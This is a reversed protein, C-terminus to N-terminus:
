EVRPFHKSIQILRDKVAPDRMTARPGMTFLLTAVNLAAGWQAGSLALRAILPNSFGFAEIKKRTGEWDVRPTSPSFKETVLFRVIEVAAVQIAQEYGPGIGGMEVSWVSRGADWRALWDAADRGFTEIDHHEEQEAPTRYFVKVGDIFLGRVPSGIGPGYFRATMGARPAIPTDAPVLFTWGDECTISYGGDSEKTSATVTCDRFQTDANM